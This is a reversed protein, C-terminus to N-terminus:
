KHSTDLRTIYPTIIWNSLVVSIRSSMWIGGSTQRELYTKKPGFVKKPPTQIDLSLVRSAKENRTNPASIKVSPCLFAVVVAGFPSHKCVCVCLMTFSIRWVLILPYQVWLIDMPVVTYSKCISYNYELDVMLRFFLINGM